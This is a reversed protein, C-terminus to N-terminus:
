LMVTHYNLCFITYKKLGIQNIFLLPRYITDLFTHRLEYGRMLTEFDLADRTLSFKNYLKVKIYFNTRLPLTTSCKWDCSLFFSVNRGDLKSQWWANANRRLNESIGRGRIQASRSESSSVIKGYILKINYKM